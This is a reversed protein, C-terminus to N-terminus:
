IRYKFKHLNINTHLKRHQQKLLYKQDKGDMDDLDKIADATSIYSM